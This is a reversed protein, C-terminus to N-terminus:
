DGWEQETEWISFENYPESKEIPHAEYGERHQEELKRVRYRELSDQLAERTFRSRSIKLERIVQDVQSVLKEDITMQVTRM